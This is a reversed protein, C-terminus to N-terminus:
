TEKRSEMNWTRANRDMAGGFWCAFLSLYEFRSWKRNKEATRLSIIATWTYRSHNQNCRLFGSVNAQRRRKPCSWRSKCRRGLLKPQRYVLKTGKTPRQCGQARCFQGHYSSSLPCIHVFELSRNPISKGRCGYFTLCILKWLICRTDHVVFVSPARGIIM